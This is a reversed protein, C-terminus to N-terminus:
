EEEQLRQLNEDIKKQFAARLKEQFRLKMNEKDERQKEFEATARAETLERQM